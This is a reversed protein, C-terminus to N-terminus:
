SLTPAVMNVGNLSRDRSRRNSRSYVALMLTSYHKRYKYSTACCYYRYFEETSGGGDGDGDIREYRLKTGM